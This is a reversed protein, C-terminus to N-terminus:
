LVVTNSFLACIFAFEDREEDEDDINWVSILTAISGQLWLKM